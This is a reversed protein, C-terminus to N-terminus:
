GSTLPSCVAPILYEWSAIVDGDEDKYEFERESLGAIRACLRHLHHAASHRTHTPRWNHCRRFVEPVGEDDCNGNSDCLPISCNTLMATGDPNKGHFSASRRNMSNPDCIIYGAMIEPDEDEWKPDNRKLDQLIRIVLGPYDDEVLSNWKEILTELVPKSLSGVIIRALQVNFEQETDTGKAARSTLDMSLSSNTVVDNLTPTSRSLFDEKNSCTPDKLWAKVDNEFADLKPNEWEFIEAYDSKCCHAMGGIGVLACTDIETDIAVQIRDPPCGSLCFGRSMVDPAPGVDRFPKCDTFRLNKDNDNCCFKRFQTGPVLVGLDSRLEDCKGGGSGSVSSAMLTGMKSNGKPNPCDEQSECDPYQGWECTNYVKTSVVDTTCCATQFTQKGDCHIQMSGIEKMNSPCSSYKNCNGNNHGYCGCQPLKSGGPCCFTHGGDGGCGTEDFMPERPRAHEDSRFVPVWGKRCGEKCNTWRCQENPIKKIEFAEENWDIVGVKVDRKLSVALANSFKAEKTDHSIAWVMVGGLCRSAAYQTKLPFTEEDDYSVWQNGWKAVKVAAEKFLEPKVNRKKFTSVIESNLLIGKERSCEGAQGAAKFLCGPKTCTGSQVSFVRGNFGM